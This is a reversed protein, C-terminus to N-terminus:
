INLREAEKAVRKAIVKRFVKGVCDSISIGRFNDLLLRTGAKFLLILKEESWSAPTWGQDCMKNFLLALPEALLDKAGKLITNHIGGPPAAKNKSLSKLASLVEAQTILTNLINM